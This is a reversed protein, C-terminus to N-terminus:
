TSAQIRGEIALDVAAMIQRGHSATPELKRGIRLNKAQNVAPENQLYTDAMIKYDAYEQM